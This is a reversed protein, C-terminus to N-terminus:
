GEQATYPEGRLFDRCSGEGGDGLIFVVSGPTVVGGCGASVRGVLPAETWERDM